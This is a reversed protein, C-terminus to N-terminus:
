TKVVRRAAGEGLSLEIGTRKPVPFHAISAIGEADTRRRERDSRAKESLRLEVALGKRPKGAERADVMVSLVDPLVELTVEVDADDVPLTFVLRESGGTKATAKIARLVGGALAPWGAAMGLAGAALSGGGLSVFGARTSAANSLGEGDIPAGIVADSLAAVAARLDDLLTQHWPVRAPAGGLEWAEALADRAIWATASRLAERADLRVDLKDIVRTGTVFSATQTEGTVPQITWQTAGLGDGPLAATARLKFGGTLRSQLVMLIPAVAAPPLTGLLGALSRRHVPTDSWLAVMLAGGTPSDEPPILIDDSTALWSEETALVGRLVETAHTLLVLAQTCGKETKAVRWVQGVGPEASPLAELSDAVEALLDDPPEHLLAAAYERALRDRELPTM